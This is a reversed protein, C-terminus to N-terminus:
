SLASGAAYEGFPLNWDGYGNTLSMWRDTGTVEVVDGRKTLNYVWAADSTSMGVCGHSVNASGQSGTSWPAAHLFEGSHTVRLAYEVNEINYYEPDDESIGTTAADMRKRRHKEMIVKTGSRTEFGDKGASVPITRALGGNVFTKMVHAGVDVKHVVSDGVHFGIRRSEQGFIGNGAPVSNVNVDVTVDTGPQWYNRPRWHAEHDSIWHWAGKQAPTSTVSMHKEFSAKDTVAVDFSVIVPMGVGVTEGDLPAVAAYTQEDLTLDSTRFKSVDRQRTGSPTVSVTRVAYTAGPELRGSAVWRTGASDLKGDLKGLKPATVTVKRLFGREVTVALKSNVPVDRAKVNIRVVARPEQTQERTVSADRESGSEGLAETCASLGGALLSAAILPALARTTLRPRLGTM